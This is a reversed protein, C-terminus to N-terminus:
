RSWLSSCVIRCLKMICRKENLCQSPRYFQQFFDCVSGKIRVKGNLDNSYKSKKTAERWIFWIKRMKRMMNWFSNFLCIGFITVYQILYRNWLRTACRILFVVISEIWIFTIQWQEVNWIKNNTGNMKQTPNLPGRFVSNAMKCTENKIQSLM